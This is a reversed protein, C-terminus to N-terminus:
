NKNINKQFNEKEVLEHKQYKEKISKVLLNEKKGTQAM